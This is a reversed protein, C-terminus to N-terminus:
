KSIELVKYRILGDPAQVDVTDGAAHGMLARGVPSENSLKSAMPDAETSGVIHFESEFEEAIDFIRVKCGINVVETTVDDEDIIHANRLTGELTIIRQEVQAQEIRAEDYESNESIDGFSKAQKMREAVERRKVGRLYELETELKRLGEPTLIIEKEGAAAANYASAAANHAAGAANNKAVAANGVYSGEFSDEVGGNDNGHQISSNAM